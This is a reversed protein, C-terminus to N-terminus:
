PASIDQTPPAGMSSFILPLTVPAICNAPFVGGYESTNTPTFLFLDWGPVSRTLSLGVGPSLIKNWACPQIVGLNTLQQDGNFFDFPPPMGMIHATITLPTVGVCFPCPGAPIIGNVLKGGLLLAGAGRVPPGVSGGKFLGPNGPVCELPTGNKVRPLPAQADAGSMFFEKPGAFKSGDSSNIRRGNTWMRAAVADFGLTTITPHFSDWTPSGFAHDGPFPKSGDKCFYWTAVAMKTVDDKVFRIRQSYCSRLFDM